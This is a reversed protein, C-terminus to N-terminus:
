NQGKLPVQVALRKITDVLWAETEDEHEQEINTNENSQEVSSVSPPGIVRLVRAPIGGVITNAPVDRTVVANAGVVANNGIHVGPLITAKAGIWVNDGITVPNVVFGRMAIPESGCGVAHNEDHISVGEGFLCNNGITLRSHVAVYCGRNFFVDNGVVVEGYFHGTFDRMFRIGRGFRISANSGVEIQGGRDLFFLGVRLKRFRLRLMSYRWFGEINRITLKQLMCESRSKKLRTIRNQSTLVVVGVVLSGGSQGFLWAWGAGAIGLRPLLIWAFVLTLFAMGVNLLAAHQLRGQVRLLSVYVNTIADPIASIMLIILLLLGHEAYSSGFLSLIVHGGLFFILLIPGLLVGIIVASARVKRTLDSTTHSGESFLATAVSASVMFFLSGLMWTTYFYANATPSLEVAVFVPLLYMPLLGGITIFHHGAFVSLMPRVRRMINHTAFYYSRKLRPVLIIAALMMTIALSLIWSSFIGLAGVQVLLLMLPLKLIAFAANRVVMNGTAREAVFIQDLLTTITCLVVGIVFIISYILSSNGVSFQFSLFPLAVAVISGGIVSTLIGLIMCMNVTLSWEYGAERRPLMQILTSGIGLNAFISTLSMASIFASALGVDHATYIHAALVWYLYGVVSTAVTSGMIFISNRLLSDSQIRQFLAHVLLKPSKQKPSVVAYRKSQTDRHSPMHLKTVTQLSHVGM